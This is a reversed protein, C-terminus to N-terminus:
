KLIQLTRGVEPVRHLNDRRQLQRLARLSSARLRATPQALTRRVWPCTSLGSLHPRKSSHLLTGLCRRVCKPTHLAGRVIRATSRPASRLKEEDASPSDEPTSAGPSRVIHLYPVPPCESRAADEKQVKAWCERRLARGPIAWRRIGKSHTM